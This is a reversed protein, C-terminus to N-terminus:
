SQANRVCNKSWGNKNPNWHGRYHLAHFVSFEHPASAVPL